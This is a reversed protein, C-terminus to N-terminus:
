YTAGHYSTTRQQEDIGLGHTTQAFYRQKLTINTNESITETHNDMESKGSGM